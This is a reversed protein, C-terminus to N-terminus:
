LGSKATVPKQKVILKQETFIVKAARQRFCLSSCVPTEIVAVPMELSLKVLM